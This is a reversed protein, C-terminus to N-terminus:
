IWGVGFKRKCAKCWYRPVGKYSGFKVVAESGCNKCIITKTTTEEIQM